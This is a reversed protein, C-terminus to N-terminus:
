RDSGYYDGLRGRYERGLTDGYRSASRPDLGLVTGAM